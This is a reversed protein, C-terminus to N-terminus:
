TRVFAPNKCKKWQPGNGSRYLSGARKSVIGELGMKCAEAFVLAGEAQIAESFLMGDAADAVLQKLAARRKEIATLRIDKGDHRLLDFAVYFARRAGGRTLLAEFDSRGDACLVVAEGDILAEDACLSRVAAAIRPFKDTYDTGRQTWITVRQGQKRALIRYGDRKVEHLWDPGAPPRDVLVPKCPVIFGAPPNRFHSPSTRWLM